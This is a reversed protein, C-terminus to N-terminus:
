PHMRTAARAFTGARDGGVAHPRAARGNKQGNLPAQRQGSRMEGFSDARPARFLSHIEGWAFFVFGTLLVLMGPTHNYEGLALIALGDFGFAILMTTERGIADSLWGFFPRTM